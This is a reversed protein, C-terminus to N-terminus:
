KQKHWEINIKYRDIRNGLFILYTFFGICVLALVGYYLKPNSRKNLYNKNPGIIFMLFGYKIGHSILLLVLALALFEKFYFITLSYVGFINEIIFLCLILALVFIPTLSAIKTYTSVKVKSLEGKNSVMFITKCYECSDNGEKPINLKTLCSPCEITM